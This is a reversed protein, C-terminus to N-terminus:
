NASMTELFRKFGPKAWVYPYKNYIDIVETNPEMREEWFTDLLQVRVIVKNANIISELTQRSVVYAKHTQNGINIPMPFLGSSMVTKKSSIGYQNHDAPKLSVFNGDINFDLTDSPSFNKIGGWEAVLLFRDKGLTSNWRLGLRFASKKDDLYGPEMSIISKNDFESTSSSIYGPWGPNDYTDKLYETTVCGSIALSILIIFFSKKM